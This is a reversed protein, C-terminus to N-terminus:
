RSAIRKRQLCPREVFWWSAVALPLTGALGGWALAAPTFASAGLTHVLLQQVPFGWIYLGYSFDGYRSVLQLPRIPLHGVLLIGLPLVLFDLSRLIEPSDRWLLCALALVGLGIWLAKKRHWLRHVVTGALYLVGFELLWGLSLMLPRFSLSRIWDGLFHRSLLAVGLIAAPIWLQRARRLGYSCVYLTAEYPLTWLSGNIAVVPNADFVGPLVWRMGWITLSALYLWTGSQTLYEQVTLHTVIPGLLFATLVVVVALGPWLRLIRRRAFTRWDPCSAASADILFGSISFFIALGLWSANFRGGTFSHVFDHEELGLLAWGHSVM